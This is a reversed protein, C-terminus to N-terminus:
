EVTFSTQMGNQYHSEVEGGEEEEVINCILAYNGADLDVTLEESGGAALDEVEDVVEMEQGSESVSGDEETPLELVDLDTAIVVFEHVEEGTNEISFTVEGAAASAPDPTVAWEMLEVSVSEQGVETTSESEGDDGCSVLVIMALVVVMTLLQGRSSIQRVM